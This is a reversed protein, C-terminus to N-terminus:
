RRNFSSRSPSQYVCRRFWWPQPPAPRKRRICTTLVFLGLMGSSLLVLSPPESAAVFPM